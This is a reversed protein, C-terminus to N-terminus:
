TVSIYARVTIPGPPWLSDRWEYQGRVNLTLTVQDDQLPGVVPGTLTTGNPDILLLGHPSQGLNALEFTVTGCPVPNPAFTFAGYFGADTMTVRVTSTVPNTCPGIGDGSTTVPTPSTVTPTSTTPAPTSGVITFVGASTGQYQYGVAVGLKVKLTASRGPQLISTTYGALSFAHPKRGANTVSFVLTGPPASKRSLTTVADTIRVTVPTVAAVADATVSGVALVVAVLCAIRM